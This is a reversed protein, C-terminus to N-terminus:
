RLKVKIGLNMEEIEGRRSGEIEWEGVIWKDQDEKKRRKKKTPEM